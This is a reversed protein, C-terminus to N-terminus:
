YNNLLLHILVDIGFTMNESGSDKDSSRFLFSLLLLFIVLELYLLFYYSAAAFLLSLTRFKKNTNKVKKFFIM